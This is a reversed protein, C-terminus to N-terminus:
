ERLKIKNNNKNKYKKKKQMVLWNREVLRSDFLKEMVNNKGFM